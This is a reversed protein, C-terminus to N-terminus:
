SPETDYDDGKNGLVQEDRSVEARARGLDHLVDRSAAARGLDNLLRAHLKLRCCILALDILLLPVRGGQELLVRLLPRECVDVLDLHRLRVLYTLGHRGDRRARV